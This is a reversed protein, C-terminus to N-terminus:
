QRFLAALFTFLGFVLILISLVSSVSRQMGNYSRKLKKMAISHQIQALLLGLFGFAIMVMGVIRPTLITERSNDNKNMESFFKYITFGFSILSVATRVWAMLTREHALMTREVALENSNIEIKVSTDM